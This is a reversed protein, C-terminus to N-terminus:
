DITLNEAMLERTIMLLIYFSAVLLLKLHLNGQTGSGMEEDEPLYINMVELVSSRGNTGKRGIDVRSRGEM